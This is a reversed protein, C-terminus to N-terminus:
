YTIEFPNLVANKASIQALWARSDNVATATGTRLSNGIVSKIYIEGIVAQFWACAAIYRGIGLDLHYGDRTLQQGLGNLDTQRAKQIAVGSPILLKAGSDQMASLYANLIANYMTQQNNNYNPFSGHGSGTAYAWTQNLGIIVNPLFGKVFDILNNLYPQFTNYMGSNGSVQQFTVIDWVEDQLAFQLSKSGINQWINNQTKNYSYPASGSQANNWHQELAGDPIHMYAIIVNKIDYASCLGPLYSLSDESFSNGISLIKLTKRGSRFMYKDFDSMWNSLPNKQEFDWRGQKKFSLAYGKEDAISFDSNDTESIDIGIDLSINESDFNKTKIHGDSFKVVTNGKEDAISFDSNDQIEIIPVEEKFSELNKTLTAQMQQLEVKTATNNELQSIATTLTAQMQQLEVKTATNNELQSIATTITAQMQQLEVKTATNNELQSIATTLTAQMQQLEVKTATDALFEHKEAYQPDSAGDVDIMIRATKPPNANHQMGSSFRIGEDAM